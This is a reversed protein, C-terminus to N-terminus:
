FDSWSIKDLTWNSVSAGNKPHFQLKHHSRTQRLRKKACTRTADGVKSVIGADDLFSLLWYQSHQELCVAADSTSVLFYKSSLCEVAESAAPSPVM